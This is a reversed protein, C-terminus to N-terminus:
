PLGTEFTLTVKVAGALPALPVKASVPVLEMDAWVSSPPIAVVETKM